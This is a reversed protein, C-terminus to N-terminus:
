FIAFPNQCASSGMYVVTEAQHNRLAFNTKVFFEGLLLREFTLVHERDEQSLMGLGAERGGSALALEYVKGLKTGPFLWNRAGTVDGIFDGLQEDDISFPGLHHELTRRVLGLDSTLVLATGGSAILTGSGVAALILATRRTFQRM